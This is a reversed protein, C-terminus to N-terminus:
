ITFRHFKLDYKIPTSTLTDALYHLQFSSVSDYTTNMLKGKLHSTDLGQQILFEEQTAVQHYLNASAYGTYLDQYEGEKESFLEMYQVEHKGNVKLLHYVTLMTALCLIMLLVLLKTMSTVLNERSLKELNIEKEELDMAFSSRLEDSQYKDM